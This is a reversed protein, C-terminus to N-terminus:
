HAAHPISGGHAMFRERATKVLAASEAVGVFEREGESAGVMVPLKLDLASEVIAKFATLESINFHGIAVQRRRADALTEILSKM